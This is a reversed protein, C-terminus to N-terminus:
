SDMDCVGDTSILYNSIQVKFFNATTLSDRHWTLSMKDINCWKRVPNLSNQRSTLSIRHNPTNWRRETRSPQTKSPQSNLPETQRQSSLCCPHESACAFLCFSRASMQVIHKNVLQVSCSSHFKFMEWEVLLSYIQRM